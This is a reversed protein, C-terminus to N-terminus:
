VQFVHFYLIDLESQLHVVIEVITLAEKSEDRWLSCLDTCYATESLNQDMVVVEEPHLYERKHRISSTSAAAPLRKSASLMGGSKSSFPVLCM